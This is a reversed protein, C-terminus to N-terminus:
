RGAPLNDWLEDPWPLSMGPVALRHKHALELLKQPYDPWRGELATLAQAEAPSLARKLKANLFAQAQSPLEKPRSAGLPPELPVRKNLRWAAAFELAFDPWQGSATKLRGALPPNKQIQASPFDRKVEAPLQDYNIVAGAPRRPPLVPHERSLRDLTRVYQPWKTEAKKLEQKERPSLRPTLENEVFARFEVPFAKLQTPRFPPPLRLGRRWERRHRQEEKRLAAIRAPRREPPLEALEERVAKPLRDVWQRERIDRIVRLREAPEAAEEVRRRDAEPLGELWARYRQLVGWLHKRAKADAQHLDQDLQRMQRRRAPPLEWFARLDRQLRAYHDPDARWKELLERNHELADGGQPVAVAPLALVLGGLLVLL